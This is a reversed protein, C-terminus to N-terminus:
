FKVLRRHSTSWLSRMSLSAHGDIHSSCAWALVEPVYTNWHLTHARIAVPRLAKWPNCVDLERGTHIRWFWSRLIPSFAAM